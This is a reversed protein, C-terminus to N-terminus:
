ADAWDIQTPLNPVARPRSLGNWAKDIVALNSEREERLFLEPCEPSM